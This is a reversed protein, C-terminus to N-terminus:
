GNSKQLDKKTTRKRRIFQTNHLPITSDHKEPEGFEIMPRRDAAPDQGQEASIKYYPNNKLKNLTNQNLKNM